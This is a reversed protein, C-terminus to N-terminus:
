NRPKKKLVNKKSSGFVEFQEEGKYALAARRFFTQETCVM